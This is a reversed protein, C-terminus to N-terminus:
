DKLFQLTMHERTVDPYDIHYAQIFAEGAKWVAAQNDVAHVRSIFSSDDLLPKSNPLPEPATSLAFPGGNGDSWCAQDAPNNDLLPSSYHTLLVANSILWYSEDVEQISENLHPQPLSISSMDISASTTSFSYVCINGYKISLAQRLPILWPRRSLVTRSWTSFSLLLTIVSFSQGFLCRGWNAPGHM